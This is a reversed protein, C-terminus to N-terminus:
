WKGANSHPGWDMKGREASSTYEELLDPRSEVLDPPGRGKNITKGRGILNKEKSL